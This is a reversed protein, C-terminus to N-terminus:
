EGQREPVYTVGLFEIPERRAVREGIEVLRRLANRGMGDWVGLGRDVVLGLPKVDTWLYDCFEDRGQAKQRRGRKDACDEAMPLSTFARVPCDWKDEWEGGHDTVVYVTMRHTM